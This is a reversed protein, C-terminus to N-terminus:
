QAYQSIMAATFPLSQTFYTLLYMNVQIFTYLFSTHGKPSIGRKLNLSTFIIEIQM